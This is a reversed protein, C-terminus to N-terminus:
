EMEKEVFIVVNDKDTMDIVCHNNEERIVALNVAKGNRPSVGILASAQEENDSVTLADAVRVGNIEARDKYFTLVLTDNTFSHTYLYAWLDANLSDAVAIAEGEKNEKNDGNYCMMWILLGLLILFFILFPVSRKM